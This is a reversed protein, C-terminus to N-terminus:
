LGHNEPLWYSVPTHMLYCSGARCLSAGRPCLRQISGGSNSNYCRQGVHTQCSGPVKKGLHWWIDSTMETGGANARKPDEKRSHRCLWKEQCLYSCTNDRPQLNAPSHLPSRHCQPHWAGKFCAAWRQAGHCGQPPKASSLLETHHPVIQPQYPYPDQHLSALCKGLYLNWAYPKPSTGSSIRNNAPNDRWVSFWSRHTGQSISLRSGPHRAGGPTHAQHWRAQLRRPLWVSQQEQKM